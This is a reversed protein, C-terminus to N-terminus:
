VIRKNTNGQRANISQEHLINHSAWSVAVKRAKHESRKDGSSIQQHDTPKWSSWAWEIATACKWVNSMVLVTNVVGAMWHWKNMFIVAQCNKLDRNHWLPSIWSRQKWTIINNFNLTFCKYIGTWFILM